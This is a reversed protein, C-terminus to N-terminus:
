RSSTAQLEAPRGMIVPWAVIRAIKKGTELADSQQLFRTDILAMASEAVSNPGIGGEVVGVNVVIKRQRNNLRELAIVKHALELLASAKDLGAFAAHGARGRITM